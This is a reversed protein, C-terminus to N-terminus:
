QKGGTSSPEVRVKGATIGLLTQVSKQIREMVYPNRAGEAVVLVGSIQPSLEVLRIPQSGGGTSAGALVMTENNSTQNQTRKGGGQPTEEQTTNSHTSNTGYESRPGSLLTVAVTVQGVGDMKELTSALKSELAGELKELERQEAQKAPEQNTVTGVSGWNGTFLVVVVAAIVLLLLVPMKKGDPGGSLKNLWNM